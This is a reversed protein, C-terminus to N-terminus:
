KLKALIESLVMVAGNLEELERESLQEELSQLFVKNKKYYQELYSVARPMLRLEVVRRDSAKAIREVFGHEALTDILRTAQQKPVRLRRALESMTVVGSGKLTELCYYTELSMEGGLSEKFPRVLKSHWGPMVQLLNRVIQESMREQKMNEQRMNEQKMNEPKM